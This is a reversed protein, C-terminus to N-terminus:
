VSSCRYEWSEMLLLARLELLFAYSLSLIIQVCIALTYGGCTDKLQHRNTGLGCHLSLLYAQFFSLFSLWCNFYCKGSSSAKQREIRLLINECVFVAM